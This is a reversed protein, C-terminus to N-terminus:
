GRWSWHDGHSDPAEQRQRGRQVYTGRVVIAESFRRLPRGMRCYLFSADSKWDFLRWSAGAPAFFFFHSEGDVDYQYGTVPGFGGAASAELRRLEGPRVGDPVMPCMLTVFDAPVATNRIFRLVPRPVMRGYVDSARGSEIRSEWGHDTPTVLALASQDDLIAVHSCTDRQELRAEPALQWRLDLRHRGTGDVVDRVLVFGGELSFVCRSHRLPVGPRSYGDHHASLLDFREASVWLDTTTEPLSRWSFPGAPLGQGCDGVQMTSHAETGRFRDRWEETGVYAFTGSDGLLLKGGLALQVSLLDAHAHGGGLETAAGPVILVRRQEPERTTMLYLRSQPFARSPATGSRPPMEDFRRVGEEGLLWIAEEPLKGEPAKLEPSAFLAAGTALPDLLGEGRNRLGDFVRGGDDDGFRFVGDSLSLAHLVDLQRILSQDLGDPVPLGNRAALIRAHLFFDLAYVHYYASREFHLGDPLVQREAQELILQWGRRRWRSGAAVEPLLLGIFFLGVAEGLLHTNPSFYTSLYTELHRGNLALGRDLEATLERSLTPSGALLHRVWLWSMSRFAVELASAWNIGMPYPNRDWWHRWQAAIEDVYHREGSLLHAKALIVWHQHRNLEWTVKADGVSEFDLFPVKYWPRLPARIGSVPDLHWDIDDGFSLSEYGLLDFRGACIKEAREVIVECEDPLRDQLLEVLAPIEAPDFFFRRTSDSHTSVAASRFRPAPVAGLRGRMMDWRMTLTQACRTHVEDWSMSAITALRGSPRTPITM